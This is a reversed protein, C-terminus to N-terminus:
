TSLGIESDNSGPFITPTKPGDPEPLLVSSDDSADSTLSPSRASLWICSPSTGASSKGRPIIPDVSVGYSAAM